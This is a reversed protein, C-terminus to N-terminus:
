SATKTGCHSKRGLKVDRWTESANVWPQIELDLLDDGPPLEDIFDALFAKALFAENERENFKWLMSVHYVNGLAVQTLKM